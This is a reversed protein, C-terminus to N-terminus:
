KKRYFGFISPRFSDAEAKAADREQRAENREQMLQRMIRDDDEHQLRLEEAERTVRGLDGRMTLAERSAEQLEIIRAQAKVHQTQLEILQERASLLQEKLSEVEETLKRVEERGDEVVTVIPSARRKEALFRQAYADLMRTRDKLITHGELEEAYRTYSKRAAEYSIKHQDAFEKLTVYDM